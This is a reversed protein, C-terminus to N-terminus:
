GPPARARRRPRRSRCRCGASRRGGRTAVPVAREDEGAARRLGPRARAAPGAQPRRRPRPCSPAATRARCGSARPRGPRRRRRAPARPAVATTAGCRCARSRRSAGARRARRTPDGVVDAHDAEVVDEAGVEAVRRQGRQGLAGLVGAGARDLRQDRCSGSGGSRGARGPAASGAPPARTWRAPAPATLTLAAPLGQRRDPLDGPDRARAADDAHHRGLPDRRRPKSGAQVGPGYFVIPIRQVSEQAGGHDGKVGYSTNDRLLGIVDPGYTPPRPTSSRRATSAAVVGVRSDDVRSARHRWRLKYHSGTRYYTALVGGLTAMVDAAQKKATVVPRSLWTRIASDQMSMEVNGTEDILASSRRSVADPLDRRRRRRLVLQLQGPGAADVGYYNEATLQAHDTTLVVLTEDLLGDDKSSTAHGPRGARRRGQGRAAMHSTPRRAARTRRSTTSAAGCTAPRTSAASTLLM